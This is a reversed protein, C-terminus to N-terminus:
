SSAALQAGLEDPSTVPLRCTGRRCVYATPQEAGGRGALLPIRAVDEDRAESVILVKNPLYRHRVEDVLASAEPTKQDGVIVVELAESAYYDLAELLHGFGTPSRGVVEAVLRLTREAADLYVERGTISYLRQLQLAMVSNASPIANDLLDKPRAVLEEADAGTTFFGGREGDFFLRLADDAGEIAHELWVVDHTAEYLALCAEVVFAYDECCGLHKVVGDGNRGSFSRMLRGDVRLRDLVFTMAEAAAAIWYGVDLAAGTEALGAAALGNWATLVKDDTGPRVREARRELLARRARELSEPDAPGNRHVPINRGEFNGTETFGWYAIAADADAGAADRVEELSWLYFKGEQGESDADLSSWFGGAPDRMEELMWAATTEAVARHRENGTALYSRAYTRLLQANDYLMKEFHPVLWYRDVSYRCFGGGLQDFMGGAAMADLSLRAMDGATADGRAACKLLFDITMPQPFKPQTGFGGYEPDFVGALGERAGTLISESRIEQAPTLRAAAGIHEALAGGREELDARNARWADAVGQLLRRFSPLGHRDTPPFYTGGYFPAGEPTLFVTMPWGGQGTMAQVAEMYISDIDPREERDVKINVFNENMLRAIGEDEFSEREMVHCWHCAAYGVSLLIPRDERRARELAERGWPYWDVPNDRHQLLYPSSENALRNTM